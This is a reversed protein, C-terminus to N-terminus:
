FNFQLGLNIVRQLPYVLGNGKNTGGGIEPDWYNFGTFTLLNTGSAYVRFFKHSYGIEANKLRLFAGSRLWFSSVATTNNYDTNHALRPYAANPNPNSESWYDDAIFKLVNKHYVGFPHIDDLYISVKAAGQFFVSFDWKKYKLSGGIGYIIQPIYPNGIYTRDYNDIVKDGNLDKYKIDGPKINEMVASQDPSNKIDAEDKFLGDAIFAPGVRNLPGGKEFQYDFPYNPEDREMVKNHAYTFNGKVSLVVDRNFVHNYELSMDIGKNTVRGINAYPNANGIGITPSITRRKMIINDRNEYFWDAILLLKQDFLGLEIGINTKKATEWTANENGYTSIIAGSYKEFQEGFAYSGGNMQVNTYGPFRVPSYANGVIGYSGRLKLLSVVSTLPEFYKENSLIYGLAYSPFFGFRKGKVFNDSGNYGFNFEFFYRKDFDYTFRGAFGQNLEGLADNYSNSAPNSKYVGRQLYILQASIDHLGVFKRQYNISLNMNLLRDGTFSNSATVANTGDNNIPKLDLPAQGSLYGSLDANPDVEFYYPINYRATTTSAFHKLSFLGKLSLGQTLFKLDQDLTFSAMTTIRFMEDIGSALEAYPNPYRNLQAGGSKNGWAIYDTGTKQPFKVPFYTPQANMVRGFIYNIDNHPGKYDQIHVNLKIGMRTTNTINTNVNAQFSYGLNQINNEFPNEKAENLLGMDNNFTASVFYDMNKTGGSVNINAAQNYTVDKFITNYWNVNPYLYPDGGELTGQIQKDTFQPSDLPNRTLKAENFMKMYTVGDALEPIQTPMSMRGELRINISPKRDTQGSKTTILLVGNAGRSGYLATATADKLVSFSEIVEPALANLDYNSAETGDILILPNQASAFTGVGRIWFNAGDAGPEGTKQVSIVGAIRGAFTTTLNSTPLRMDAPKMGQIAGIVSEKKQQGFGVVVVEDLAKNNEKMVITISKKNGYKTEQTLYGIYSIVLIGNDPVTLTFRGDADTVVGIKEGKITVNAGIIAEGNEDVVVGTLLHGSNAPTQQKSSVKSLVIQRNNISYEVDSGEFLLNLVQQISQNKVDVNIKRVVNVQQKNYLFHYSSIEEIRNLINEVTVNKMSISMNMNASTPQALSEMSFASTICCVLLLLSIKMVLLTKSLFIPERDQAIPIFDM